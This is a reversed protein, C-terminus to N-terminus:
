FHFQPQPSQLGPSRHISTTFRFSDANLMAENPDSRGSKGDKKPSIETLGFIQGGDDLQEHFPYPALGTFIDPSDEDHTTDENHTTDAYLAYEQEAILRLYVNSQDFSRPLRSLKGLQEMHTPYSPRWQNSKTGTVNNKESGEQESRVALETPQMNTNLTRTTKCLNVDQELPPQSSKRQQPSQSSLNTCRSAGIRGPKSVMESAISEVQDPNVVRAPQSSISLKSQLPPEGSLESQINLGARQILAFVICPLVICYCGKELMFCELLSNIYRLM